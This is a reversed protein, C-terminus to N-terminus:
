AAARQRRGLDALVETAVREGSEVAGNMFGQFESTHEGCFHIKGERAGESGAFKTYQGVRYFSYSGLSWPNSLWCDLSAKENWSATLGPLVPEIRRLFAPAHEDPSGRRFGAGIKGGTFNVLIGSAGPQARTSEWTTQVGTDSFTEGNAHLRRWPRDRFQLQLKSNTGMGIERIATMKRPSLGALSLDISKRLMTFPVALVLQDTIIEHPASSGRFTLRFRGDSLRRVAALAHESEVRDRLRENLQRVLLDNGGRVHFREDSTGLIELRDRASGGLQYILNLASQQDVDGGYETTYAVRLLHGLQSDLGGDIHRAIWDAISIQDLTRGAATSKEPSTEEGAAALSAQLQPWMKQFDATADARSYRTGRVFFFDESGPEEHTHLDDLTLGLERALRRVQVHDTDILEGGREVTQGDDFFNRLTFCRGGLRNSGEYVTARVGAQRLRYACTLGALGGGIIAITPGPEAGLSYARPLFVSGAATLTANRLFARRSLARGAREQWIEEPPRSRLQSELAVARIKKLQRFLPTRAMVENILSRSFRRAKAVRHRCAAPRDCGAARRSCRQAFRLELLSGDTSGPGQM